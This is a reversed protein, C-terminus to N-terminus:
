REKLPPQTLPAVRLRFKKALDFVLLAGVFRGHFQFENEFERSAHM